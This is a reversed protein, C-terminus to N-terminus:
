CGYSPIIDQNGRNFTNDVFLIFAFANRFYSIQLSQIIGRIKFHTIHVPIKSIRGIESIEHMADFIRDSENRMHVDLIGDYERVVKAIEAIEQLSQYQNPPYILGASIGRAGEEMAQAAINKMQRMENDNAKRDTMGMVNLRITGLGVYATINIAAPLADIRDFYDSLSRWNWEIDPNGGLGSLHTRWVAIDKEEIPAVSMGDLGVNETTVGQMVKQPALPHEFIDLDSHSHSDIFGPTVIRNVASIVKAAKEKQLQGIKVIKGAKVAVDSMYGAKGSGDIIYGNQILLDYM